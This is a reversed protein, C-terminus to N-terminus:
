SAKEHPEKPLNIDDYLGCAKCKLICNPQLEDKRVVTYDLIESGWIHKGSITKPCRPVKIKKGSM